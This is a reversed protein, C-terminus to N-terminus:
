FNLIIIMQNIYDQSCGYDLDSSIWGGLDRLWWTSNALLNPHKANSM